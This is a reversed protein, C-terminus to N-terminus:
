RAIILAAVAAVTSLGSFVLGFVVLGKNSRERLDDETVYDAGEIARIRTEHDQGRSLVQDLNSLARQVDARMLTMLDYMDRPTIIVSRDDDGM